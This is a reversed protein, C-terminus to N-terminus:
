TKLIELLRILDDNDFYDLIIKGGGSKKPVCQVRTSYKKRLMDFVAELNPDVKKYPNIVEKSNLFKDIRQELERVSWGSKVTKEAFIVIHHLRKLMLLAKAHGASLLGEELMRKVPEPLKLLRLSNAITARNKGIAKSAREQTLGFEDILTQYGKATEIPNLNARQLNEILSSELAKRDDMKRVIAPIHMLGAIKAARWRREGAILEYGAAIPRLIVPQVIGNEKISDALEKIKDDDFRNRSQYVGAKIQGLPISQIQNEPGAAREPILAELGKGLSKHKM